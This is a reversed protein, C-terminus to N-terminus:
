FEPYDFHLGSRGEGRGASRRRGIWVSTSGDMGRAYRYHRQLHVGERPLEELFFALGPYALMRGLPGSSSTPLTGRRMRLQGNELDVPLFPVWYDPVNSGLRYKPSANANPPPVPPASTKWLQARDLPLGSPGVVTREVGWAMDALEDRLLLVDEITVSELVGVASPLIVLQPTSVADTAQVDASLAFMRWMGAAGDAQVYHPITTKLGFTDAVVLSDISVDSGVPVVLPVQFWDNGYILAFERLLLRGVDEAGATLAGIDVSADEMEWFRRAPMGRFTVPSVLVNRTSKLPQPPGGALATSSRDFTYWDVVGGDYEHAAFSGSDTAPGAAFQYEMRDPSWADGGEPESFLSAYWAMWTRTVALVSDHNAAAIAPTTPLQNGAQVLEAYLKIGNIVRGSVIRSFNQTDADPSIQPALPYQTLYASRLQSFGALDLLRLFHLGAEAAQHLDDAANTPRITEREIFTEIPQRNDYVQGTGAGITCRDLPVSTSQVEASVPSGTDRGAFEGVQWQRALLWLPDHVRAELGPQLSAARCRPEIRNWITVSPM